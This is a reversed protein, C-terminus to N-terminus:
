AAEASELNQRKKALSAIAKDLKLQQEAVRSWGSEIALVETAFIETLSYCKGTSSVDWTDEHFYSAYPGVIVIRKPKFSPTLCWANYPYSRKAM